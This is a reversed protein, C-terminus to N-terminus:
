AEPEIFREIEATQWLTDLWTQFTQQLLEYQMDAPLPRQPDRDIVQVIYYMPQTGDVSAAEIVGSIEGPQLAFAADELAPVLLSNRMFYGMDGGNEGTIRDVSHQMALAAFDDGAQMSQLLTNALAADVVQLYRAHVQEVLLPVDSTVIEAMQMRVLDAALDHRYEEETWLNAELWAEFNGAEGAIERHENFADDVMEDTIVIGALEAAQVVLRQKILADLVLHRYIAPDDVGTSTEALNKEYRALEKEYTVLLIPDGNVFAALPEAPTPTVPIITPVATVVPPPALNETVTPTPQDLSAVPVATPTVDDNGCATLFLLIVFLFLNIKNKM